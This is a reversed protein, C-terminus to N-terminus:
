ENLFDKVMTELIERTCSRLISRFAIIDEHNTKTIKEWLTIKLADHESKKLLELYSEYTLENLRGAGMIEDLTKGTGDQNEEEWLVSLFDKMEAAIELPLNINLKSDLVEEDPSVAPFHSDLLEDIKAWCRVISEEKM